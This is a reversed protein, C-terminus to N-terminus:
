PLLLRRSFHRRRRDLRNEDTPTPKINAVPMIRLGTKACLSAGARAGALCFVPLVRAKKWAGFVEMKLERPSHCFAAM